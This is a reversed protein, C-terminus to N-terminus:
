VKAHITNEINVLWLFYHKSMLTSVDLINRQVSHFHAVHPMRRATSGFLGDARCSQGM